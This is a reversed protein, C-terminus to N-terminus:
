KRACTALHHRDCIDANVTRRRRSLQCNPPASMGVGGVAKAIADSQLRHCRLQVDM